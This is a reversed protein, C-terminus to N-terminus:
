LHKPKPKTQPNPNLDSSNGMMAADASYTQHVQRKEIRDQRDCTGMLREHYLLLDSARSEM